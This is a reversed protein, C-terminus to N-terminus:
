HQVAKPTCSLDKNEAERLRGMGGPVQWRCGFCSYSSEPGRTILHYSMCQLGLLHSHCDAFPFISISVEGRCRFGGPREGRHGPMSKNLIGLISFLNPNGMVSM